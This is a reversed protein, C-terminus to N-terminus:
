QRERSHSLVSEPSSVNARSPDPYTGAFTAYSNLLASTTRRCRRLLVRHSDNLAKLRAQAGQMRERAQLLQEAFGYHDDTANQPNRVKAACQAQLEDLHRDLERVQQCLKEQQVIRGELGNLDLSVLDQRATVFAEALSGLATIRRDLLELYRQADTHLVTPVQEAEKMWSTSRLFCPPQM